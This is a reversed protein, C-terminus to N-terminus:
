IDLCVQLETPLADVGHISATLGRCRGGTQSGGTVRQQMDDGREREAGKRTKEEATM